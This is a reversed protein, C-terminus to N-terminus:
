CHGSRPGSQRLTEEISLTGIAETGRARPILQERATTEFREMVTKSSSLGLLPSLLSAQPPTLHSVVSGESPFSSISSRTSTPISDVLGTRRRSTSSTAQVKASQPFGPSLLPGYTSTPTTKAVEYPPIHPSQSDCEDFLTHANQILDEM